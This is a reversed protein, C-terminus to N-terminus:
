NYNSNQHSTAMAVKAVKLRSRVMSGTQTHTVAFAVSIDVFCCQLGNKLMWSVSIGDVKVGGGGGDEM